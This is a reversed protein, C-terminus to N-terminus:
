SKHYFKSYGRGQVGTGKESIKFNKQIFLIESNYQIEKFVDTPSWRCEIGSSFKLFFSRVGFVNNSFITRKRRKKLLNKRKKKVSDSYYYRIEEEPTFFLPELPECVPLSVDHPGSLSFNVDIRRYVSSKAAQFFDLSWFVFRFTSYCFVGTMFYYFLFQFWFTFYILENM